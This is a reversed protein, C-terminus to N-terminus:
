NKAVKKVARAPVLTFNYQRQSKHIIGDCQGISGVTGLVSEVLKDAIEPHTVERGRMLISVKVQDGHRLMDVIHQCKVKLDQVGIGVKFKLDKVVINHQKSKRAAKDKTYQWKAYSMIKCVGSEANSSVEVLDLDMSRALELAEAIPMEGQFEGTPLVVRVSKSKINSNIPLSHNAANSM